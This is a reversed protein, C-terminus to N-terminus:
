LVARRLSKAVCVVVGPKRSGRRTLAAVVAKGGSGVNVQYQVVVHQRGRLKMKQLVVCGNQFVEFMRAAAVVLRANEIPPLNRLDQVKALLEM